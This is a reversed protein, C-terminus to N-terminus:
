QILNFGLSFSRHHTPTNFNYELLNDNIAVFDEVVNDSDNGCKQSTKDFTIWRM